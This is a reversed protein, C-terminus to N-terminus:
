RSAHRDVQLSDVVSRVGDTARAITLAHLRARQSEVTGSLRVTGDSVEVALNDGIDPDKALREIVREQIESDKAAVREQDSHAVVALENEVRVVGTVASAEEEAARRAADSPVTGFLTVIGDRTDVNIDFAPTMTNAMLRVKAASTIWADTVSGAVASSGGDVKDAAQKGASAVGDVTARGADVIADGTKRAADGIASGAQKAGDKTDRWIEADTLADPGQIQSAVRRVGPTARAVEIARLHDSLTAATGSLLVVGDNVSTVNIDSDELAQDRDLASDVREQIKEDAVAVEDQITPAVVTLLNRLERVGTVAKSAEEAKSKEATSGVTGHLTVRGDITDVNIATGSIGDATLLAMKVKTTIWADPMAAAAPTALVLVAGVAVASITQKLSRKNM